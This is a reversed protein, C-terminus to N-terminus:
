SYRSRYFRSAPTGTTSHSSKKYLLENKIFRISDSPVKQRKLMEELQPMMTTEPNNSYQIFEFFELDENLDCHWIQPFFHADEMTRHTKRKFSIEMLRKYENEIFCTMNLGCGNCQGTENKQSIRVCRDVYGSVFRDIPDRTIMSFLWDTKVFSINYADRVANVSSFENKNKCFRTSFEDDFTRGSDAYAKEDYLYCMAGTMMTSMSKQVVCNVMKYKPSVKLMTEYRRNHPACTMRRSCLNKASINKSRPPLTHSNAKVMANLAFLRIQEARMDRTKPAIIISSERTVPRSIFLTICIVSISAIIILVRAISMINTHPAFM